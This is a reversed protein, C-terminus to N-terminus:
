VKKAGVYQLGGLATKVDVSVSGEKVKVNPTEVSGNGDENIKIDGVIVKGDSIEINGFSETDIYQCDYKNNISIVIGGDFNYVICGTNIQYEGVVQKPISYIMSEHNVWLIAAITGGPILNEVSIVNGADPDQKVTVTGKAQRIAKPGTMAKQDYAGEPTNQAFTVIQISCLIAAIFFFKLKM